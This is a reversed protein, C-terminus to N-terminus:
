RYLKVNKILANEPIAGNVELEWEDNTTVVGASWRVYMGHGVNDWGLSIPENEVTISNKIGNDNKIYTSYTIATNESGQTLTGGASVVIKIADWNVTADGRVDVINSTTSGNISVERVQYQREVENWLKYEGRKLLDLLGQGTETNIIRQELELGLEPNHARVLYSCALTANAEIIIFDYERGAASETQVGKRSLIPRGIYSRIREAQEKVVKLKLAEWDPGVEYSDDNPNSSATVYVTDAAYYWEDTTNGDPISGQAAGLDKGEHFLKAVYGVSDARYVTHNGAGSHTQWNTVLRKQDYAQLDPVIDLLDTNANCYYTEITSM